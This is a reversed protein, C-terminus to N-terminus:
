VGVEACFGSIDVTNDKYDKESSDLVCNLYKKVTRPDVSELKKGILMKVQPLGLIPFTANQGVFLGGIEGLKELVDARPKKGDYRLSSSTTTKAEPIESESPLIGWDMAKSLANLVDKVDQTCFLLNSIEGHEQKFHWWLQALSKYIKCQRLIKKIRVCEPCHFRSKKHNQTYSARDKDISHDNSM